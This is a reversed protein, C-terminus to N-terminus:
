NYFTKKAMSNEQVVRTINNNTNFVVKGREVITLDDVTTANLDSLTIPKLKEYVKYDWIGPQITFSAGTLNTEGTVNVYWIFEDFRDTTSGTTTFYVSSDSMEIEFIYGYGSHTINEYLTLIVENAGQTLNIM